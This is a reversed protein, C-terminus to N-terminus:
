NTVTIDYTIEALEADEMYSVTLKYTGPKSTTFGYVMDYTLKMERTSGDDYKKLLVGGEVSLNEGVKYQTKPLSKFSMGTFMGTPPEEAKDLIKITFTTTYEKYTVTIVQKNVPVSSDFGSITCSEPGLIVTNGDPSTLALQLGAFAPVDGVYYTTKNPASHIEFSTTKEIDEDGGFLILAAIAVALVLVVALVIWIVKKTKKGEKYDYKRYSKFKRSM